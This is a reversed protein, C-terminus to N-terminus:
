AEAVYLGLLVGGVISILAVGATSAARERRTERTWKLLEISM